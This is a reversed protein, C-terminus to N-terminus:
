RFMPQAIWLGARAWGDIEYVELRISHSGASLARQVTHEEHGVHWESLILTDDIWLRAGDDQLVHFVYTGAPWNSFTRTWRISFHDANIGAAPSNYAWDFDINTDDRTLVPSGSLTENNYYQGRWVTGPVPTPTPTPTLTVTPTPTRTPTRTPTPTPTPTITPTRTPTPTLAPPAWYFSDEWINNTENAEAITNDPDTVLRVTHWGSASVTLAWDDFGGDLGAGYDAFPYRIHRTNDIWLEVHFNGAAVANGANIFHWDFYTPQGAYLTNVTHTGVISSPVVPLTYGAPTYPQLDPAAPASVSIYNNRTESDSGGSGTVTLRVTFTGPSTYIHDHLNTCSSGTSGDGYEWYCTTISGTSINHMAVTLPAVGSQPWADFGAVPPPPVVTIYNTRTRTNSGESGTVTLRVTFSGANQYIHDHYNSCSTGTTGDGYDWACTAYNGTSINHMAVTLPAVGNQPWADFEALPPSCAYNKTIHYNTYHESYVYHNGANDWAELGLEIDGNPVGATCLDWAYTYPASNLTQVDHWSGDWKASLAVRNVGSADDSANATLQVTRSTITQGNSPTVWSATPPTTDGSSVYRWIAIEDVWPGRYVVSSDSHFFWGVWVSTDGVYATYYIDKAEWDANGDWALGNFNIGDSSAGFFVYDYGAETARWLDFITDADTANSLDFPGYIMWTDMNNPYCYISADVRDAGGDAPWGAWYGVHPKYNGDDWYREYGDNSLDYLTWGDYPFAGEFTEYLIRDWGLQQKPGAQQDQQPNEGVKNDKDAPSIPHADPPLRLTLPIGPTGTDAMRLTPGQAPYVPRLAFRELAGSEGAITDRIRLMWTGNVAVGDFADLNLTSFRLSDGASPEHNWLVYERGSQVHQLRVELQGPAPHSISYSVLLNSVTAEPPADQIEITQEVWEGTDPIALTSPFGAPPTCETAGAFNATVSRSSSMAVNVPNSSGSADGSWYSFSYGQNPSATLAVTTGVTYQTNNNCNPSPAASINGGGTPSVNLTLTYCAQSSTEARFLGRGHTAAVLATNMWFLEDVSVNAPGEHPVTWNAGANESVFVGVETGVYIWNSNNPHIVLSRVPADPLGSSGSGTRDGWSNGADTTRWVNDPSFGGFTVYVTNASNRDITIRTVYRNPLGPANTDVQTWSPSTATGNATRYVNGNSHGVWVIDSNGPAVAIASINSNGSIPAKISAWSPGATGTNATKPDNSRWLSRGGVLLRNPNNPDLIFPSIFNATNNCADDIRYPAPRCTWQGGDWYLGYIYEASVGADSSRHVQASIYEGYFYNPNAPDAAAFGGDGGFMTSWTETNGSYRLTGNDQTGGVIVGSTPNGAAGYFQTIGLNNNLEQWGTTGLVTYVNDA